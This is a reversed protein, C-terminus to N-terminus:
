NTAADASAADAGGADAPPGDTLLLPSICVGTRSELTNIADNATCVYGAQTCDADSDCIELCYGLDGPGAGEFQLGLCTSARLESGEPATSCGDTLLLTCNASCFSVAEPDPGDLQFSICLGGECDAAETAITCAAGVVGAGSPESSCLSRSGERNCFLGEGCAEDSQCVPACLGLGSDQQPICAQAPARCKVANEAAGPNCLAWCTGNGDDDFAECESNDDMLACENGDLTCPLSCYGDQPGGEGFKGTDTVSICDLTEGDDGVPCDAATECPWGVYGRLPPPPDNGMGSGGMGSGSMSQSGASSM